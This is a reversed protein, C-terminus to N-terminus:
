KKVAEQVLASKILEHVAKRWNQMHGRNGIPIKQDNGFTTGATTVAQITLRDNYLHKAVLSNLIPFDLVKGNIKIQEKDIMSTCYFSEVKGARENRVLHVTSNPLSDQFDLLLEAGDKKDDIMWFTILKRGLEELLGGLTGGFATIGLNNRAATNIVISNKPFSDCLNVLEIWGESVDLNIAETTVSNEYCKFVDPNSTDSEILICEKGENQLYDILVMSFLSKGVGGKSGGVLYIPEAM